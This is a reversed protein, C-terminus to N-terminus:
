DAKGRLGRRAPGDAGLRLLWRFVAFVVAYAVITEAWRLGLQDLAPLPSLTVLLALMQAATMALALAAVAAFEFALSRRRLTERLARLIEVAALLTLAGVGVPGGGILDRGLGLLVVLFAPTARPRRLVLYACVCFLIDPAPLARAQENVPALELLIVLWGFALLVLANLWRLYAPGQAAM